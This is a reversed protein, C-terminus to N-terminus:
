QNAVKIIAEHIEMIQPIILESEDNKIIWSALSEAREVTMQRKMINKIQAESREPDRKLVREIRTNEPAVVLITKDLEKFSETEFLLAAEKLIYVSKQQQSWSKFDRAVAPHVLKNLTVIEDKNNFVREALYQRNLEGKEYSQEGFQKIIEDILQEDENMLSKARIDAYYVPIGLLSFIETIISKGSGIGGTIGILLPNNM